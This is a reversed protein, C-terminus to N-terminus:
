LYHRFVVPGGIPRGAPAAPILRQAVKGVAQILGSLATDRVRTPRKVM